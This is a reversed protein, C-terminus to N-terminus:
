EELLGYDFILSLSAATPIKETQGKHASGSKSLGLRIASLSRAMSPLFVRPTMVPLSMETEIMMKLFLLKFRGPLACYPGLIDWVKPVVGM